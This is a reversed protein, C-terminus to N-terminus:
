ERSLVVVGGCRTGIGGWAQALAVGANPVQHGEAEGRVQLAAQAVRLLGATGIPNGHGLLGGSPNVPLPGEIESVGDDIMRGAGGEECLGLAECHQLEKYSYSDYVEALHVEKRPDKLGAMDYAQRAARYTYAANGLEGKALFSSDSCWGVGTIWIPTQKIERTREASALILVCAGDSPSAVGMRRLPWCLVESNLIEEATVEMPNQALPNLTANRYNKAAVKAMHEETIGYLSMYRRAEFAALLYEVHISEAPPSLVPRTYIPDLSALILRQTALRDDRRESGKQVSGVVIIQHPNALVEMFGAVVGFLGDEGLRLDCPKMVGGISDLTYQNSLSRGELFDYSTTFASGIDDRSVGADELAQKTAQYLLEMHSLQEFNKTCPTQGIGVISVRRQM